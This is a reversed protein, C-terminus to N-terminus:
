HLHRCDSKSLNYHTLTILRSKGSYGHLYQLFCCLIHSMNRKCIKYHTIGLGQTAQRTEKKIEPLKTVQYIKFYTNVHNRGFPQLKGGYLESTSIYQDNPKNYIFSIPAVLRVVLVNEERYLNTISSKYYNTESTIM